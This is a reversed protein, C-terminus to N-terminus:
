RLDVEVEVRRNKQRGEPTAEDGQPKASGSAVVTLRSSPVGIDRLYAALARARNASIRMNADDDGEGSSHGTLIFRANPHSKLVVAAAKGVRRFEADNESNRVRFYVPAIYTSAKPAAEPTQGATPQAVPKGAKGLPLEAVRDELRSSEAKKMGAAALALVKDSQALEVTLHEIKLKAEALEKRAAELEGAGPPKKMRAASKHLEALDARLKVSEATAADARRKYEDGALAAGDLQAIKAEAAALKKEWAEVEPAKKMSALTQRLEGAEKRAAELEQQSQGVKTREAQLDKNMSALTERKAALQKELEAAKAVAAEAQKTQAAMASAADQLKKVTVRLTECEDAHKRMDAAAKEADGRLAQQSENLAKEKAQWEVAQRNREEDFRKQMGQTERQLNELEAKRAAAAQDKGTSAVQMAAIQKKADAAMGQLGRIEELLKRAVKADEESKVKLSQALAKAEEWEMQRATLEQALKQREAETKHAQSVASEAQALAEMKVQLEIKLEQRDRDALAKTEEAEHLTKELEAQRAKAKQLEAVAQRAKEAQPGATGDKNEIQERLAQLSRNMEELQPRLQAACDCPKQESRAPQAAVSALCLVAGCALLINSNM